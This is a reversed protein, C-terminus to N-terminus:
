SSLVTSIQEGHRMYYWSGIPASKFLIINGAEWIDKFISASEAWLIEEPCVLNSKVTFYFKQVSINLYLNEHQKSSTFIRTCIKM